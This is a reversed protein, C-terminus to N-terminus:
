EEKLLTFVAIRNEETLEVTEKNKQYGAPPKLIHAEYNGPDVKFVATGTDDTVHLYLSYEHDM